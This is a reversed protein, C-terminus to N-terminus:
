KNDRRRTFIRLPTGEFGYNERLQNELFRRYSFHLLEPNNVFLIFTPPKVASQTVYLIKLRNGKDTPPPNRLVADAILDNLVGTAIRQVQQEAAYKVVELVRGVRQGTLASIFVVPAYQMFGLQERIDEQFRLMTKDDKILLDWKNVVLVSGKGADHVYGAIKKDQETVGETANILILVVDARDIARLARMVSYREASEAIRAKRRMGATDILLYQQQDRELFSDIADRTTGPVDSVIVREEGLIANVLSSKGVNPRGVVAVKIADGPIEEEPAQPLRQIVEDLLDGVNMGHAASIRLPEGLGLSYFDFAEFQGAYDEIKNVVLLVPKKNRRLLAAVNEDDATVGSRGDVVFLTVDAEEIALQAQLRTQQEIHTDKEGFTIGGTDVLTFERGSWEADRYLRDRTIGPVNEVIAIRGGTVRNFLTSKGVNPRGVIAVIPKPM